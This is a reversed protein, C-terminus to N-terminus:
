NMPWLQAMLCFRGATSRVGRRTTRVPEGGIAAALIPEFLYGTEQASRNDLDYFFKRWSLWSALAAPPIDFGYEMLARPSIQIMTPLPQRQLILSYKRRRKHLETLCRLYTQFDDDVTQGWDLMDVVDFMTIGDTPSTFWDVSTSYYDAPPSVKEWFLPFTSQFDETRGIDVAVLAIIRALECPDMVARMNATKTITLLRTLQQSKAASLRARNNTVM